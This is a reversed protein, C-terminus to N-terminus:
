DDHHEYKDILDKFFIEMSKITEIEQEDLSEFDISYQSQTSNFTFNEHEYYEYDLTNSIESGIDLDDEFNIKLNVLRHSM